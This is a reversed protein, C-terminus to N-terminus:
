NKLEYIMRILCVPFNLSIDYKRIRLYNSNIMYKLLKFQCYINLNPIEKKKHIIKTVIRCIFFEYLRIKGGIAGDGWIKEHYFGIGFQISVIRVKKDYM